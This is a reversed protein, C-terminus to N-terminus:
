TLERGSSEKLQVRVVLDRIRVFPASTKERIKTFFVPHNGVSLSLESDGCRM